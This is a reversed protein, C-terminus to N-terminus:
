RMSRLYHPTLSLIDCTIPTYIGLRATATLPQTLDRPAVQTNQTSFRTGAAAHHIPFANEISIRHPYKALNQFRPSRPFDDAKNCETKIM